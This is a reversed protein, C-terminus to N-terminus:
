ARRKRDSVGSQASSMTAASWTERELTEILRLSSWDQFRTRSRWMGSSRRSWKSVGSSRHSITRM